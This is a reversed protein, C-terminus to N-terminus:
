PRGVGTRVGAPVAYLRTLLEPALKSAFDRLRQHAFSPQEEYYTYLFIAAATDSEGILKGKAQLLKALYSNTV